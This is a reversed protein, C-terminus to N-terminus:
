KRGIGQRFWEALLIKDAKSNPNLPIKDIYRFESPIMYIPLTRTLETTLEAIANEKVPHHLVIFAVIKKVEGDRSLAVVAGNKVFDLKKLQEEIEGLEIRFGHLKIQDDNRGCFFLLGDEFYGLDGTKYATESRISIFKEDTLDPRNLYGKAVHDGSIVIEGIGNDDPKDIILKAGPKIYGVPLSRYKNCIEPTIQVLTTAVTAETPGYGNLVRCSPFKHLLIRATEVPLVEGVFLFTRLCPFHNESFKEERLYQYIFSPTSTWVTCGSANLFSHLIDFKQADEKSLLCLGAGLQFAAMYDYVSLDFSYIAPNFFRDQSGFGYDNLLWNLFSDLAIRDIMVGKPKGTSGSTYMVYRIDQLCASADIESIEHRIISQKEDIVIPTKIYEPIESGTSIFAAPEAEEIIMKIRGEPIYSDIPIYPIGCKICTLIWIPFLTEKHGFIVVPMGTSIGAQRFISECNEVLMKLQQWSVTKDLTIIAPKESIDSCPEFSSSFYNFRM